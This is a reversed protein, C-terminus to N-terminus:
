KIIDNVLKTVGLNKLNDNVSILSSYFSEYNSSLSDLRYIVLMPDKNFEGLALYTLSLNRISSQLTLHNPAAEQPVPLAALDVYVQRLIEALQTMEIQAEPSPGSENKLLALYHTQAPITNLLDRVKEFYGIVDSPSYDGVVTFNQVPLLLADRDDIIRSAVDEITKNYKDQGVIKPNLDGSLAGGLMKETFIETVTKDKDATSDYLPLGTPSGVIKPSSGLAAGGSNAPKSTALHISAKLNDTGTKLAAFVAVAFFLPLAVLGVILIKLKVPM